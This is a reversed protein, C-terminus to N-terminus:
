SAKINDYGNRDDKVSNLNAWCMSHVSVTEWHAVYEPAFGNKERKGGVRKKWEQDDTM